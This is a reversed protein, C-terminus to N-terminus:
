EGHELIFEKTKPNFCLYLMPILSIINGAVFVLYLPFVDGLFGYIVASLATGGTSAAQIFGLIAGRNEEPLALMLSANFITNGACNMFMALFCFVCIVTFDASLYGFIFFLVSFSFSLALAWYRTKPSMKWLSLLVVCALYGVTSVTMLYGYNDVAFGKELVFPLALTLPGAALLNIILASPVFLRLFRNSFIEKVAQKSDKLIGKVTVSQGQQLTKPVRVFLESFASYLNSLGNLVVIVPVGFFAVVAGSFATGVTSIMSTCGSFISQGRVMDDHPIIDIMLTSAAPSYFVSGMAALFAALLVGPVTLKGLHALIGITIMLIGQMADMGVMVWKRNCKDIISGTFPSLFMTVFMSISSMIGMLSNSGTQEYVWYGIAVSYMLDGLTSVASGQLLLIFDKNWLKKHM